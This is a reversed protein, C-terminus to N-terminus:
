IRGGARRRDDRYEKVAQKFHPNDGLALRQRIVPVIQELLYLADEADCKGLAIVLRTSAVARNHYEETMFSSQEAMAGAAGALAGPIENPHQIKNNKTM